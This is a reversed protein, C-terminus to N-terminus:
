VLRSGSGKLLEERIKVMGMTDNGCYALLNERIKQREGEPTKPSLMRLFELSALSGEQIALGDYGMSPALAPLVAKLSFSGHFERYYVHRRIMAHLDKFRELTARLPHGYQPLLAALERLIRKEYTTYVFITGASDLVELLTGAFEERPDQDQNCLYERHDVTGDKSLIHDSWQFPITQYPRTGTYRPVAPSVTEFDLFHVPYTVDLLADTLERSIYDTGSQLCDKMRQQITTLPFSDPIDRIDEIDLAALEDLKQQTIGPLDMVWFAPRERTCHEWFECTYPNHCHRSPRIDPADTESLMHKLHAIDTSIQDQLDVVQGTLESFLFLSQLELHKGDYVYQNNVHLIGAKAVTLGSGNLVHCQIAVDPLYVEKVSTSSKVEVLNWRGDDCRELIDARIRVGDYLFAGEFVAPISADELAAKTSQMAEEHHLHDEEILMGGPHLHTALRGVEHGTDFIAQQSPSVEAGLERNYCQYWLRLPCQLGAVFRSKSLVPIETPSM